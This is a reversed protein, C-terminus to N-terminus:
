IESMGLESFIEVGKDITFGVIVDRKGVTTSLTPAGGSFTFQSGYTITSSGDSTVVITFGHATDNSQEINSISLDTINGSMTLHFTTKTGGMADLVVVGTAAGNTTLGERVLIAGNVGESTTARSTDVGAIVETPTALEVIGKVTETADVVSGGGAGSTVHWTTGTFYAKIDDSDTSVVLDSGVGGITEGSRGITLNFTSYPTGFGTRLYVTDGLVPSLPLNITCAAGSNDPIIRDGSVAIYTTAQLTYVPSALQRVWLGVLNQWWNFEGRPPKEPFGWGKAKKTPTPEVKNPTNDSGNNETDVAWDPWDYVAM